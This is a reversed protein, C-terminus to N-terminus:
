SAWGLVWGIPGVSVLIFIVVNLLSALWFEVQFVEKRTKHRLTQQAIVAGPWGGFLAALHLTREPTRGTGAVAAQKDWSYLLFTFGSIVLYYMAWWWPTNFITVALVVFGIFILVPVFVIADVPGRRAPRQVSHQNSLGYVRSAAVACPRGDPGAGVAYEVFDGSQPRRATPDFASIHVFTRRGASELFGFGREDNWEALVGTRREGRSNM